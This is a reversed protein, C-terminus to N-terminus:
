FTSIKNGNPRLDRMIENGFGYISIKDFRFIDLLYKQHIWWWCLTDFCNVGLLVAYGILFWEFCVYWKDKMNVNNVYFVMALRVNENCDKNDEIKLISKM